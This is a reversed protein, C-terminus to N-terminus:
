DTSEPGIRDGTSDGNESVRGAALRYNDYVGTYFKSWAQDKAIAQRAIAYNEGITELSDEETFTSPERSAALAPDISDGTVLQNHTYVWGQSLFPTDRFVERIVDRNQYKVETIRNVRDVYETRVQETVENNAFSLKTMAESLKTAYEIKEAQWKETVNDAGADKGIFFGGIGAGAVALAGGLLIGSNLGLM